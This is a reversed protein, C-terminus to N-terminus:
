FTYEYKLYKFSVDNYFTDNIFLIRHRIGNVEFFYGTGMRERDCEREKGRQLLSFDPTSYFLKSQSSFFQLEMAFNVNLTVILWPLATPM